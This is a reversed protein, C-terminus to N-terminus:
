GKGGIRQFLGEKELEDLLRDDVYKEVNMEIKTGPNRQAIMELVVRVGDHSVRPPFSFIPGYFQYAEEILAPNKQKLRQNTIALAREKNTVFQYIGESYAQLFRKVVDRNKELFSRRTAVVNIPFAATKLDSLNSLINMGMRSAEGTDPPALLTADFAGKSLAILRNSSPGGALLTVSQRPINWEKLALAMALEHAGGFAVIGVKKGTLDTPQRINKQVVLSFPFKNSSAAILVLDAGQSIAAILATGDTLAFHTSGGVLAQTGPASGSIMVLDTNLGYKTFLGFDKTAWIPAQGVGFGNYSVLYREQAVLTAPWASLILLITFWFVKLMAGEEIVQLRSSRQDLHPIL